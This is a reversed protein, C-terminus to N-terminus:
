FQFYLFESITSAYVLSVAFAAGALVAFAPKPTWAAVPLRPAPPLNAYRQRYEADTSLFIQVTNPLTFALLAAAGIMPVGTLVWDKLPLVSDHAYHMGARPVLAGFDGAFNAPMTFGGIGLMAGAIELAGDLTTARFFVWAFVVAVFTLAWGAVGLVHRAVGPPVGSTLGRLMHNVILYSGHLAGWIVFGWGAGHWLGGLLMTAFLNVHRRAPGKRNGGLPIYLYDRLFQSLTMHWRRWFEIISGAKYPSNFNIPLRIGFLLALGIAMDSYGSFDFYIQFTYALAAGWAEVSAVDGGLDAVAFVPSAFPALNDALVVKKFLGAIFVTLGLAVDRARPGRGTFFQPMMERHHVIPGAILQPFFSVFLAYNVLSYRDSRGQRVDVLYAIQQFTFFSIGIPLIVGLPTLGGGSVAALNELFFDAYKFFGLVSLNCAIGFIMWAKAAGHAGRGAADAIRRGLVFNVAISLVMLPLFRLDWWAYFGLSSLVLVANGLGPLFRRTAAHALWVVPLFAFIFIYSNFLM